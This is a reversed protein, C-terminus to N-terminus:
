LVETVVIAVSAALPIGFCSAEAALDVDYMFTSLTQRDYRLSASTLCFYVTREVPTQSLIRLTSAMSGSRDDPTGKFGCYRFGGGPALGGWTYSSGTVTGDPSM